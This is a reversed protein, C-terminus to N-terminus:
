GQQEAGVVHAAQHDFFVDHRRGAGNMIERKRLDLVGDALQPILRPLAVHEVLVDILRQRSLARWRAGFQKHHEGDLCDSWSLSPGLLAITRFVLQYKKVM